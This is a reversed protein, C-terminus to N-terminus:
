RSNQERAKQSEPTRDHQPGLPNGIQSWGPTLVFRYALCALVFTSRSKCRRLPDALLRFSGDQALGDGPKIVVHLTSKRFFYKVKICPSANTQTVQRPAKKKSGAWHPELRVCTMNAWEKHTRESRDTLTKPWWLTCLCTEPHRRRWKALFVHLVDSHSQSWCDFVHCNEFHSERYQVNNRSGTTIIEVYRSAGLDFQFLFLGGKSFLTM